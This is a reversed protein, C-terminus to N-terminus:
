VEWPDPNIRSLRLKTRADQPPEALGAGTGAKDQKM